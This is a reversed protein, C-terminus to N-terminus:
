KKLNLTKIKQEETCALYLAIIPARVLILVEEPALIEQVDHKLATFSFIFM